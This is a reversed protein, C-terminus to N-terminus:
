FVFGAICHAATLVYEDSILSGGCKWTRKGDDNYGLLAMHPFESLGAPTGGVVLSAGQHKCEEKRTVIDPAGGVLPSTITQM